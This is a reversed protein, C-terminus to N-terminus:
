YRCGEIAECAAIHVMTMNKLVLVMVHHAGKNDHGGCGKRGHVHRIHEHRHGYIPLLWLSSFPFPSVSEEHQELLSVHLSLLRCTRQILTRITKSSRTLSVLSFFFLFSVM